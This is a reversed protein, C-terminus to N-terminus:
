GQLPFKVDLGVTRASIRPIPPPRRKHESRLVMNWIREVFGRPLGTASVTEDINMRLDILAYLALDIDEYRAGLEAEAMQDEWLRPSSPKGAIKEPLGLRRAMARVQTKYLDGIPLIDVGGDGYKTFYGILLESKDGTGIVACGNKNAYYYLLTMRIRSLLNGNAIRHGEDYDPIASRYASRIVEVDIIRYRIGLEEALWKADELDERPTPKGPMILGIVNESGLSKVALSATVSSDVGGSLGVVGCKLGGGEVYERIFEIIRKEAYSYDIANVVDNLTIHRM